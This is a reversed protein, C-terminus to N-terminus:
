CTALRRPWCGPALHRVDIYQGDLDLEFLLDPMADLIAQM